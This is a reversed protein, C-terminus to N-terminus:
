YTLWGGDVRITDGTVFSAAPSALFSVVKAVEQPSGARGLPTTRTFPSPVAKNKSDESNKTQIDGPAIGVVRIGHQAWEFGLSRTMADMAGKSMCYASANLQSASGAVSSMNVIVGSKNKQMLQAARQACAFASILNIDIMERLFDLSMTLAPSVARVGSLAANNVLVDIQGYNKEIEAFLTERQREDTLQVQRWIIQGTQKNQSSVEDLGDKDLGAAIVIFGEKHFQQSVAKGIGTGGGTVLAIKQNKM